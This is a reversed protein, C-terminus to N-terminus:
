RGLLKLDDDHFDEHGEEHTPTEDLRVTNIGTKEDRAEIRGARGKYESKGDPKVQVQDNVQM